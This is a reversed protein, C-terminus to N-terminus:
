NEITYRNPLLCSTANHIQENDIFRSARSEFLQRVGLTITRVIDPDCKSLFTYASIKGIFFEKAVEILHLMEGFGISKVIFTAIPSNKLDYPSEQNRGKSLLSLVENELETEPKKLNQIDPLFDELAPTKIGPSPLEGMMMSVAIDRGLQMSLAEVIAISVLKCGLYLKAVELNKRTRSLLGQYTEADPEGQFKQFVREPSLFNMFGEMRQLSWRYGTVTYSNPNTLEHNTEPLLNWTNDLFDASDPYAFNVVDRNALRVSRKVVEITQDNDWGFNFQNKAVGLRQYLLDSPSLGSSSLSRFPITAEICAAIEAIQSSSLFPSLCLAAILASLFENQGSFPSLAQGPELGFVSTVIDFIPSFPLENADRIVIQGKVEKVFPAIYSSINLSVGQDVQVHVLDHFLAALVEIPDVSGGVEFIHETTHFYRWRGTMAQIILEAINEIHTLEVKAQLQEISGILCDTCRLRAVELEM